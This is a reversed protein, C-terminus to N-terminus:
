SKKNGDNDENKFSDYAIRENDTLDRPKGYTGNSTDHSHPNSHTRPNGHDTDHITSSEGHAFVVIDERAM